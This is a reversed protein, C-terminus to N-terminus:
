FHEIKQLNSPLAGNQPQPVPPTTAPAPTPTPTPPTPGMPFLSRRQQLEPTPMQPGPQAPANNTAPAPPNLEADTMNTIEFEYYKPGSSVNSIVDDLSSSAIELKRLKIDSNIVLQKISKYFSYVGEVNASKGKIDIKGAENTAYYTVWLKNPTSMGLAGYYTLALKSNLCIKSVTTYIDFSNGRAAEDTYEAIASNTQQIKTNLEDLRTQEKPIIVNVLMLILFVMPLVLAGGIILAIKKIFDPTLEVELNGINIRPYGKFEEAIGSTGHEQLLNLKMPFDCFPYTTAGIIEPTIQLAKKPLINLNVPTLENQAYKNCEMFNVESEVSMKLSLVEASVLDTESVIFLHTAPLGVLTLKASTTIANYIEDDVFSKLALPEEYYEVIKTDIMSIISYSNQGIIMLNWTMNDQMQIITSNTYYLARLLSAYSTEIGVLTCGIEECVQQIGELVTEQIATYALTRNESEINSVIQTWGVVPRQRKFIYSQEVESIIANTVAEDTLLLPLQIMGFYVNPLSLIINSTSPIHLEAFLEELGERFQNYDTIERTSHNYELPRNSYKNVTGTTRDIEMMELGIGPSISVGITIKTSAGLKSLLNELM